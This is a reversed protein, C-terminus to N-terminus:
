RTHCCSLSTIMNQKCINEAICTIPFWCLEWKIVEDSHCQVWSILASLDSPFRSGLHESVTDLLRYYWGLFLKSKHLSLFFSANLYKNMYTNDNEILVYRNSYSDLSKNINFDIYKDIYCSNILFTSTM